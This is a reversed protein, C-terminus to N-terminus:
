TQLVERFVKGRLLKFLRGRWQSFNGVANYMLWRSGAIWDPGSVFYFAKGCRL